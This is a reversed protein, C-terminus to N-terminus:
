SNYKKKTITRNNAIDTQWWDLDVKLYHEVVEYMSVVKFHFLGLIERGDSTYSSDKIETRYLCALM